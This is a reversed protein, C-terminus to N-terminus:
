APKENMWDAFAKQNKLVTPKSSTGAWPGFVGYLQNAWRHALKKMPMAKGAFGQVPVPGMENYYKLMTDIAEFAGNIDSKEVGAGDTGVLFDVGSLIVSLVSHARFRYFLEHPRAKLDALDAWQNTNLIGPEDGFM